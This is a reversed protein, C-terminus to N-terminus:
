AIDKGEILRLVQEAARRSPSVGGLGLRSLALTTGALQGDRLIPDDLLREVEWALRDPRCDAQLLEPVVPKDALLNLLCVYRVKLLRRALVATLAAVRYAIVMPVRALALELAVTGSAALAVQSAAFADYREATGRVVTV